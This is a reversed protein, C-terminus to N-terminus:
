AKDDKGYSWGFQGYDGSFLPKVSGRTDRLESRMEGPKSAALLPAGPTVAATRVMTAGRVDGLQCTIGEGAAARRQQLAGIEEQETAIEKELTAAEERLAHLHRLAPGLTQALQKVQDAQAGSLKITGSKIGAQIGLYRKLEPSETAAALEARKKELRATLDKVAEQEEALSRDLAGFEPIAMVVLTDQDKRASSQQLQVRRGHLTCACADAVTIEDAVVTCLLARQLIVRAAVITCNEAYAIQVSGGRAEIIAQSARGEVHVEGDTDHIRGGALNAKLIVQGGSSEIRGFVDAHFTMHKGEVVRREQVEGMEEYHDGALSLDGTTRLSVGERNIIKDTVSVLHSQVDLNLFGDRTAVIVEGQERSEVATGPGALDPLHYDRPPAPEIRHGSVETGLEGFHKPVKRLLVTGAAVQPFRNKFSRLDIRGDPLLRPSDDRHLAETEETLTADVGALPAVQRAIDIRQVDNAAIAARIAPFDLGARIGRQWMLAVFEDIDLEAPESHTVTQTGVIPYDGNEDPEGYVPDEIVREIFVPEFVYEARIGGDALKVQKYLPQREPPIPRISRALKVPQKGPPPLPAGSPTLPYLLGLLTTYDLGVFCANASFVREVFVRLGAADTMEPNIWLGDGQQQVFGPLLVQGEALETLTGVAKDGAKGPLDVVFGPRESAM